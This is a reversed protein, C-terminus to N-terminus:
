KRYLRAEFEQTWRGLDDGYIQLAHTYSQDPFFELFKEKGGKEILMAVFAGALPYSFTDPALSWDLWLAPISVQLPRPKQQELVRRARAMQDRGTLDLHVAVGENILATRVTPKLAHYSIVHTMEHGVTQQVLTHTLYQMPRSFGLTPMGAEDAEEQSSWVIFRIKRGPGGGFWGTITAYAEERIRAYQVRDFDQLRNSFLFSFHDTEFSRWGAFFESLGFALLSGAAASTANRTARCDRALTWARGAAPFDDLAQHANGLYVQAWAYVWTRAADQQVAKQLYPLGEEFRTLDVLCRGVALNVAASESGTAILAQGRSVVEEFRGERYLPWLQDAPGTEQTLAPTAAVLLPLVTLYILLLRSTLMKRM